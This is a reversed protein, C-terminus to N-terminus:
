VKKKLKKMLCYNLLCVLMHKKVNELQTVRNKMGELNSKADLLIAYWKHIAFNRDDKELASALYGYSERVMEDKKKGAAEAKSSQFLARGLRWLVDPDEQSQFIIFTLLYRCTTLRQVFLLQYFNITVM